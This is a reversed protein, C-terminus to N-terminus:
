RGNQPGKDFKLCSQNSRACHVVIEAPRFNRLAGALMTHGIFIDPVGQPIVPNSETGIIKCNHHMNPRRHSRLGQLYTHQVFAMHPNDNM